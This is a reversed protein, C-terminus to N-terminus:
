QRQVSFTSLIPSVHTGVSKKLMNCLTTGDDDDARLATSLSRLLDGFELSHVGFAHYIYITDDHIPDALIVPHNAQLLDLLPNTSSSPTKLMSIVGLDITEYVAFMPLENGKEQLLFYCGRYFMKVHRFCVQKSEWRAEVKEVDLYVDAKGEQYTVVIIGLRETEGEHDEDGDDAFPMYTMDTADGGESGELARPSPQLLFPGQRLPQSKITSPPHMPVCCSVASLATGLPLQKILASVYKHQYDYLTTLNAAAASTDQLIFEQKATIFCELARIFSSPVSSSKTM